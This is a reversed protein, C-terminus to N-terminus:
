HATYGGDVPLSIGTIWQSEDSALYVAAYAVDEPQGLRGLLHQEIMRQWPEKERKMQEFMDRNLDTIVFSPHISNVRINHCGFDAAMQRALSAIAGKSASYAPRVPLGVMGAISSIHIISGGRGQAVMRHLAMRSMLFSGKVNVALCREWDEETTALVTQRSPIIGANNVLIDIGGLCQDCQVGTREVEASVSVDGTVAFASGGENRIDAVIGENRSTDIDVCVVAAGERAFRSAIAAGLGKAAGTVVARKQFLRGHIASAIMNGTFERGM